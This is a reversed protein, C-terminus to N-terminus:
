PTQVGAFSPRLIHLPLYYHYTRASASFRADFSRSTRQVSLIRIQASVTCSKSDEQAHWHTESAQSPNATGLGPPCPGAARRLILPPCM